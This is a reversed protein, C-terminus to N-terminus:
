EERFGDGHQPNSFQLDTTLYNTYSSNFPFLQKIIKELFVHKKM